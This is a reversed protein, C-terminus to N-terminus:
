KNSCRWLLAPYPHVDLIATKPPTTLHSRTMLPSGAPLATKPILSICNNSVPLLIAVLYFCHPSLRSANTLLQTLQLFLCLSIHLCLDFLSVFQVTGWVASYLLQSVLLFLFFRWMVSGNNSNSNFRFGSPSSHLYKCSLFLLRLRVRRTYLLFEQQRALVVFVDVNLVWVGFRVLVVQLGQHFHFSHWLQLFTPHIPRNYVVKPYHSAQSNRYLLRAQTWRHHRCRRILM